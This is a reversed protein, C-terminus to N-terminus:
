STQARVTYRLIYQRLNKVNDLTKTRATFGMIPEMRNQLIGIALIQWRAYGWYSFVTMSRFIQVPLNQCVISDSWSRCNAMRDADNPYTYSYLLSWYVRVPCHKPHSPTQKLVTVTIVCAAEQGCLFKLVKTWSKLRLMVFGVFYTHAWCLSLDAM